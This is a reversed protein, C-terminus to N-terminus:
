EQRLATMPAVHAARRAPILAAIAAVATLAIAASAITVADAATVGYLQSQIYRGLWWAAGFGLALGIGVLAAAERLVARAIQSALAGLAIRIGIERTRRTVSYAMVGYLGIISLVTAMTALTGSLSAILRENVVSREARAQLTSVNYVALQPALAALEGRVRQMLALPDGDTRVYTSVNEISAQLYPFFIQPRQDERIAWAHTDKAIGVIEIPMPTGPNDDLGVHRGIPNVGNFYKRAFTENVVAVRYPWGKPLPRDDRETFERGALLRIGMAKFFGPSVANCVAGASEGANPRYGDVTLNMSWGGGELLPQFSYAVSSVGPLHSLRDPYTRAFARARDGDYGSRSLDFMFSLMRETRFGPDVSLLNQLSRVFLGASILLVFSLAVQAVVLSKRVRSHEGAVAGGGSKLTPALDISTTRFAPIIAALIATVVALATTFAVIRLDPSATIALNTVPNKYFQLLIDAGWAALLLGTAAGGSALLLSEIVLLTIIDRRAAGLALRLALERQRAAGRAILLNAINACVILLVAAAVAMLILLPERVYEHLGSHGRAASEVRLRDELFRRKTETSATGFAPDKVEEQLVAHYLPQLGTEARGLTMDARLRGFVQAWRLRPTDIQLWASGVKPQMTIPVYIQAPQAIDVGEFGAQAVGVVQFPYGNVRVTQGIASQDGGFRAHWYGYALVAVAPDGVSSDEAATFLRGAAPRIGLVPFFTGSVLEGVVQETRGGFGVYLDSPRRCFMGSFVQNHDRLDRYMAYSLETGDGMVGIPSGASSVQALEGPRLVPITRLLVQDVLTFVTTNAGIGFGMSLVAVATFLPAQRLSRSADRFDILLRRGARKM